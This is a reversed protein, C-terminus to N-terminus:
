FDWRVGASLDSTVHSHDGSAAAARVSFEVPRAIRWVLGLSAERLNRDAPRGPSTYSDSGTTAIFRANFSRDSGSERRWTVGARATLRGGLFVAGVDLGGLVQRAHQRWNTFTMEAGRDNVVGGIAETFDDIRWRSDRVGAHPTVQWRGPKFVWGAEASWDTRRGASTASAIADVGGPSPILRRLDHDTRSFAAGVNFYYAGRRFQVMAGPTLTKIGARSGRADFELRTDEKSAFAGWDFSANSWIVGATARNARSLAEPLGPLADFRSRRAGGEFFTAFGRAGPERAAAFQQNLSSRLASASHLADNVLAGYRDPALAEIATTLDAASSLSNLRSALQRLAFITNTRDIRDLSQAVARGAPTTAFDSYPRVSSDILVANSQYRVSATFRPASLLIIHDFTGTITSAALLQNTSPFRSSSNFTSSPGTIQLTGALTATGAIKLQPQQNLLALCQFTGGSTQEFSGAVSRTFAAPLLFTGRNVLTGAVDAFLNLTGAAEIATSGIVRGGAEVRGGEVRLPVAYSPDGFNSSLQLTGSGFKVLGGGTLNEGAASLYAGGTDRINRLSGGTLQLTNSGLLLDQVDVNGLIVTRVDAAGVSSPALTSTTARLRGTAGTGTSAGSIDLLRATLNNGDAVAQDVIEVAGYLASGTVTARGLSSQGAWRVIPRANPPGSGVLKITASAATSNGDFLVLSDSEVQILASGANATNHFEVTSNSALFFDGNGATTRDSFAVIAPGVGQVIIRRNDTSIATDDRFTLRAPSSVSATTEGLFVTGGSSLSGRNSFILSSGSTINVDILSSAGLGASDLLVSAPTGDLPSGIYVAGHNPPTATPVDFRLQGLTLSGTIVPLAGGIVSAVPQGPANVYLGNSASRVAPTLQNIVVAYSSGSPVTGTSWNAPNNWDGITTLNGPAIWVATQAFATNALLALAALRTGRRLLLFTPTM